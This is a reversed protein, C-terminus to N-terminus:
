CIKAKALANQSEAYGLLFIGSCVTIDEVTFIEAKSQTHLEKPVFKEYPSWYDSM